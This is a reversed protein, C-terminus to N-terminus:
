FAIVCRVYNLSGTKGTNYVAGSSMNVDYGFTIGGENSSWYSMTTIEDAGPIERLVSNVSAMNDTMTSGINWISGDFPGSCLLSLEKASPLYWGSSAGSVEHEPNERYIRVCTVANVTLWSNNEDANFAEIGRTNNYGMIKNLNDEKGTGTYISVYGTNDEIWEGVTSTYSYVSQWPSMGSDHLSVALGNVCEPHDRRLAADDQGPDGAYFVVAVPTKHLDLESSWTGDSYYIDGVEPAQQIEESVTIDCIAELKGLTATVVANGTALARVRGTTDVEAVSNDSSSWIVQRDDADSPLVTAKLQLVSGPAMRFTSRSLTLSEAAIGSVTVTCVAEINGARATIVCVGEGRATVDGASSVVAVAGDSTTWAVSPDDANDPGVSAKLRVSEGRVLSLETRDLELTRVAVDVVNVHCHASVAGVRATVVAGGSRIGSVNGSGEVIAVNEDSSHWFLETESTEPTVEAHLTLSTGREIEVSDYEMTLSVPVSLEDTQSCSVLALSLVVSLIISKRM